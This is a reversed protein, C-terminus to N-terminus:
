LTVCIAGQTGPIPKSVLQDLEQLYLQQRGDHSAVYALRRGDPSLAIVAEGEVPLSGDPV